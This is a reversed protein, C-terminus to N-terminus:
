YIKFYFTLRRVLFQQLENENERVHLVHNVCEHDGEHDHEHDRVRDHGRVRDHEHGHEHDHHSALEQFSLHSHM